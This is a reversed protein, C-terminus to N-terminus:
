AQMVLFENGDPDKFSFDWGWPHEEPKSAFKVGNLKLEQYAERADRDVLILIGTNGKELPARKDFERIECLHLASGRKPHGVTLWHGEEMLVKMGLKETFFKKSRKKDKVVVATSAVWTNM